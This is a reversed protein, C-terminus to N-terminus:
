VREIAPNIQNEFGMEQLLKTAEEFYRTNCNTLLNHLSCATMFYGLPM